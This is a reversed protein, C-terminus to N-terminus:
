VKAASLRESLAWLRRGAQAGVVAPDPTAIQKFEKIKLFLAGSAGAFEEALLLKLASNASEEATQGLIPDFVWKILWRAWPPFDLRINTKVVGVKLCTVTVSSGRAALQRGLEVTFVDNARQFQLIARPMTFRATLNVDNYYITGSQAAGGIMVIRAPNGPHGAADLISLRRNTLVFRSLYNIAFNSDIGDVTLERRCLVVGASHVLYHLVPWRTAVDDALRKVERMVGLDAQIFQGHRNGTTESIERAARAGKDSDRGVLIIEIGARGLGRAIEKGIGDTGGTVLATKEGSSLSRDPKKFFM